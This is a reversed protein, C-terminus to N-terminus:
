RKVDDFRLLLGFEIHARWVTRWAVLSDLNNELYKRLDSLIKPTMPKARKVPTQLNRRKLGRMYLNVIVNETISPKGSVRYHYGVSSLHTYATAVSSSHVKSVHVLYAILHESTCSMPEFQHNNCFQQWEEWCRQYQFHFM